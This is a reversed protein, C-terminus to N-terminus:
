SDAAKRQPVIGRDPGHPGIVDGVVPRTHCPDVAFGDVPQVGVAGEARRRRARWGPIVQAQEAGHEAGFDAIRQADDKAVVGPVREADM